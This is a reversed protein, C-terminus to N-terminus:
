TYPSIQSPTFIHKSSCNGHKVNTAFSAIIMINLPDWEYDSKDSELDKGDLEEDDEGEGRSSDESSDDGGELDFILLHKFYSFFSRNEVYTARYSYSHSCYSYM